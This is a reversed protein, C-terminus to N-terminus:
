GYQELYKLYCEYCYIKRDPFARNENVTIKKQCVACEAPIRCANNVQNVLEKMRARYHEKPFPYGKEKRHKLEQASVNYQREEAVDEFQVGVWEDGVDQICDPADKPDRKQADNTYPAYRMARKPDFKAVDMRDLEERTFPSTLSAFSIEPPQTGLYSPFWEGYEGRDLMACKLEDVRPWYEEESYQKNFICFRKKKLGVCGFCDTCDTTRICYEIGSCRSPVYSFKVDQSALSVCSLYVDQSDNGIVVSECNRSNFMFWADHVDTTDTNFYGSSRTCDLLYDGECESTNTSFYEPWIAQDHLIKHFKEKYKQLTSNCSLDIESMRKQYEEKTLQENMFVYRKRRLNTSCFCFECNRCDFLFESNMCDISDFVQTCRNLRVSMCSSFTNECNELFAVDTCRDVQKCRFTFWSDKAQYTGCVVFSNICKSFGNGICGESDYAFFAGVPVNKILEEQQKFFSKSFDYDMAAEDGYDRAAFELDGVVQVLSDPNICSLIPKKTEFHPKWWLDVGSGWTALVRMRTFPSLKSPPVRWKRCRDIYAQDLEWTEGSIPCVREGPELTDLIEKVKADYKPTKSM